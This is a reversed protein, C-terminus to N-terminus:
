GLSTLFGSSYSPSYCIITYTERENLIVKGKIVEIFPFCPDIFHINDNVFGKVQTPNTIQPSSDRFYQLKSLSALKQM